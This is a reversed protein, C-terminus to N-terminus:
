PCPGTQLHLELVLWEGRAPLTVSRCDSPALNQTAAGPAHLTVRSLQQGAPLAAHLRVNLPKSERQTRLIHLLRTAAQERQVRPILLAGPEDATGASLHMAEAETMLRDSLPRLTASLETDIPTAPLIARAHRLRAADPAHEPLSRQVAEVAFPIQKAQLRGALRLADGPQYHEMQFILLLEAASEWGRFLAPNERVFRYLDGYEEPTGFYRPQPTRKGNAELRDPMYVDWPVLPPAGLAYLMAIARRAEPLDHPTLSPVFGLGRGQVTATTLALNPPTIPRMEAMVYDALDLLQLTRKDPQPNTLNLSLAIGAPALEARLQQFFGRVNELHFREWAPYLPSRQRKQQADQPTTFGLTDRLYTRYDFQGSRVEAPLGAPLARGPEALWRAFGQIAADSYEGGFELAAVELRPDDFQIAVPSFALQKRAATLLAERTAPSASTIWKAGWSNMWPAVLPQGDFDRALGEPPVALNANLTSGVLVGQAKLSAVYAASKAYLWEVRTAGFAEIAPLAEPREFRTSFIVSDASPARPHRPPDLPEAGATATCAFLSATILQRLM